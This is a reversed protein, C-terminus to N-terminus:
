CWGSPHCTPCSPEEGLLRREKGWHGVCIDCNELDPRLSRNCLRVIALGYMFVPSRASDAALLKPLCVIIEPLWDSFGAQERDLLRSDGAGTLSGSWLRRGDAELPWSKILLQGSRVRKGGLSLWIRARVLRM